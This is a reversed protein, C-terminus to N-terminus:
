LHCSAHFPAAERYTRGALWTEGYKSFAETVKTERKFSVMNIPALTEQNMEPHREMQENGFTLNM